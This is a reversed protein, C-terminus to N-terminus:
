NDAIVYIGNAVGTQWNRKAIEVEDGEVCEEQKNCFLTLSIKDFLKPESVVETTIYKMGKAIVKGNVTMQKEAVKEVERETETSYFEGTARNLIYFKKGTDWQFLKLRIKVDNTVNGDEDTEYMAVLADCQARTGPFLTKTFNFVRSQMAMPNIFGDEDVVSANEDGQTGRAKIVFFPLQGEREDRVQFNTVKCDMVNIKQVNFLRVKFPVFRKASSGSPTNGASKLYPPTFRQQDDCAPIYEM